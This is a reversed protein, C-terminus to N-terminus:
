RHTATYKWMSPSLRDTCSSFLASSSRLSFACSCKESHVQSSIKAGYNGLVFAESGQGMTLVSLPAKTKKSLQCPHRIRKGEGKPFSVKLTEM